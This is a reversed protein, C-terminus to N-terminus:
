ARGGWYKRTYAFPFNEAFYEGYQAYLWESYDKIDSVDVLPKNIFSSIIKVKEDIPLPALNNQAPHKLWCGRWYNYSVPPHSFTKSSKEFLNKM